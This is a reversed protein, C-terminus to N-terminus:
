KIPINTITCGYQFFKAAYAAYGEFWDPKHGLSRNIANRTARELSPQKYYFFEDSAWHGSEHLLTAGFQDDVGLIGTDLDLHIDKDWLGM